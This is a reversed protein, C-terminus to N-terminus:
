FVRRFHSEQRSNRGVRTTPHLTRRRRGCLRVIVERTHEKNAINYLLSKKVIGKTQAAMESGAGVPLKTCTPVLAFPTGCAVYGLVLPAERQRPGATTDTPM